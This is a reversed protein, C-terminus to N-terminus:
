VLMITRIVIMDSICPSWLSSSCVQLTRVAILKHLGLDLLDPAVDPTKAHLLVAIALLGTRVVKEKAGNRVLSVLGLLIGACCEPM